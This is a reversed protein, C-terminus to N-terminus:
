INLYLIIYFFVFVFISLGRVDNYELRINISLYKMMNQTCFLNCSTQSHLKTFQSEEKRKYIEFIKKFIYMISIDKTINKM